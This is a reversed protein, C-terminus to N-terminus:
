EWFIVDWSVVSSTYIAMFFFLLFILFLSNVDVTVTEIELTSQSDILRRPSPDSLIQEWSLHLMQHGITKKCMILVIGPRFYKRSISLVFNGILMLMEDFLQNAIEM